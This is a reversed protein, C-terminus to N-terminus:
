YWHQSPFFKRKLPCLGQPSVKCLAACSWCAGHVSYDLYHGQFCASCHPLNLPFGPFLRISLSPFWACAHAFTHFTVGLLWAPPVALLELSHPTRPLIVTPPLSAVSSVQFSLLSCIKSSRSHRILSCLMEGTSLPSGCGEKGDIWSGSRWTEPGGDREWPCDEGVSCCLRRGSGGM